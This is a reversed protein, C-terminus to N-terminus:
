QNVHFLGQLFNVKCNDMKREFLYTDIGAKALIEATCSGAPGGGVVAVRLPRDLTAGDKIAYVALSSQKSVKSSRLHMKLPKGSMGSKSSGFQAISHAQFIDKPLASPRPHGASAQPLVMSNTFVGSFAMKRTSAFNPKSIRTVLTHFAALYSIYPKLSIFGENYFNFSSSLFSCPAEKELTQSESQNGFNPIMNCLKIPMAAEANRPTM